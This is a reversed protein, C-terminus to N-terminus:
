KKGHLQIMTEDDFKEFKKDFWYGLPEIYDCAVLIALAILSTILIVIFMTTM